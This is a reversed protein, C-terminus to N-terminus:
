DAGLIKWIFTKQKDFVGATSESGETYTGDRLEPATPKERAFGV